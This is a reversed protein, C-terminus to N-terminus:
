SHQSGGITSSSSAQNSYNTGVSGYNTIEQGFNSATGSHVEADWTSTSGSSSSSLVTSGRASAGAPDDAQAPASLGLSAVALGIVALTRQTVDM